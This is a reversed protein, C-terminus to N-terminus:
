KNSNADPRHDWRFSRPGGGDGRVEKATAWKVGKAGAVVKLELGPEEAKEEKEGGAEEDEEGHVAEAAAEKADVEGADDLEAAPQTTTDPPSPLPRFNSEPVWTKFRAVSVQAATAPSEQENPGRAPWETV